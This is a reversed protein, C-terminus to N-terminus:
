RDLESIEAFLVSCRINGKERETWGIQGLGKVKHDNDRNGQLNRSFFSVPHWQGDQQEQELIGGNAHDSADTRVRWRVDLRPLYLSVKRELAKKICNCGEGMEPTWDIDAQKPTLRIRKRKKPPLGSGDSNTSVNDQYLYKGKLADM